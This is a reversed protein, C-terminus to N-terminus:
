GGSAPRRVSCVKNKKKKKKKKLRDFPWTLYVDTAINVARDVRGGRAVWKMGYSSTVAALPLEPPIDFVIYM